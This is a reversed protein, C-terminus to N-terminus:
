DHRLDVVDELDKKFEDLERVLEQVYPQGIRRSIDIARQQNLIAEDVSGEKWLDKARSRLTTSTM